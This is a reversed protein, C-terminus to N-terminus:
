RVGGKARRQAAWELVVIACRVAHLGKSRSWVPHGTEAEVIDYFFPPTFRLALGHPALKGEVLQLRFPDEAYPADPSAGAPANPGTPTTPIPSPSFSRNTM